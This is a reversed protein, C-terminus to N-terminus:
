TKCWFCSKINKFNTVKSESRKFVYTRVQFLVNNAMERDWYFPATGGLTKPQSKLKTYTSLVGVNKLTSM